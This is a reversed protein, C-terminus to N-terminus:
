AHKDEFTRNRLCGAGRAHCSGGWVIIGVRVNSWFSVGPTFCTRKRPCRRRGWGAPGRSRQHAVSGSGGRPPRDRLRERRAGIAGRGCCRVWGRARRRVQRSRLTADRVTPFGNRYSAVRRREEIERQASDLRRSRRGVSYAARLPLPASKAPHVVAIMRARAHLERTSLVGAEFFACVSRPIGVSHSPFFLDDACSREVPAQNCKAAHRHPANRM